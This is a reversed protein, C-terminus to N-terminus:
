ARVSRRVREASGPETPCGAAVWQRLEAPAFRVLRGVRRHPIANCNTLEWLRREGLGLLVRATKSDVLLPEPTM